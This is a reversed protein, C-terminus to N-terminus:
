AYYSRVEDSYQRDRRYIYLPAQVEAAVTRGRCQAAFLVVNAPEGERPCVPRIRCVTLGYQPCMGFVEMLRGVPYCFYFWGGGTLLSGACEFLQRMTLKLEHRAILMQNSVPVRGTGLRYYPPNAVVSNFRRSCSSAYRVIDDNVVRVTKGLRNLRVNRGALGALEPQIEVATVSAAGRGALLLSLAGNGAGIDLIEGSLAWRDVFHALLVSDVTFRYGTRSQILRYNGTLRDLRQGSGVGPGGTKSNRGATATAM